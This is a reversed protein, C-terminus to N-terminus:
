EKCKEAKLRQYRERNRNRHCVKCYASRHGNRYLERPRDGCDPCTLFDPKIEEEERSLCGVHTYGAGVHLPLKPGFGPFSDLLSAM